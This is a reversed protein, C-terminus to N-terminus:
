ETSLLRIITKIIISGRKDTMLDLNPTAIKEELMHDMEVRMEKLLYTSWLVSTTRFYVKLLEAIIHSECVFKIWGNELSLVFQGRQMIVEVGTGGFLVMPYMPVMSVQVLQEINDLGLVLGLGGDWCTRLGSRLDLGLRFFGLGLEKSHPKCLICGGIVKLCSTAHLEPLFTSITVLVAFNKHAAWLFVSRQSVAHLIIYNWAFAHFHM